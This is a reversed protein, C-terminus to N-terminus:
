FKKRRIKKKRCGNFPFLNFDKVIKIFFYKKLKKVIWFKASSVNKLHLAVPKNKLFTLKTIESCFYNFVKFRSKKHKGKLNFHGASSFLRLKGSSDTVHLFTNSRSFTLDIIYEILCKDDSFNDIKKKTLEHYLLRSIKQKVNNILLLQKKLNKLYQKKLSIFKLFTNISFNLSTTSLKRM